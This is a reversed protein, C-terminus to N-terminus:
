APEAFFYTNDIIVSPSKGAAWSPIRGRPVMADPAYYLTAGRTTDELTAGTVQWALALCERLIPLAGGPLQRDVVRAAQEMVRAHNEAGGARWWCSFQAPTLCVDQPTLGWRERQAAVRNQIVCAIATRLAPSGSRCEGWLTLGVVEEPTLRSVLAREAPTM